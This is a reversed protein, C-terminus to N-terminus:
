IRAIQEIFDNKEKKVRQMMERCKEVGTSMKHVVRTVQEIDSCKHANHLEIYCMVCMAIKCELCYIEISKDM